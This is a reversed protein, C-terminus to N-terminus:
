GPARKRLRFKIPIEGGSDAIQQGKSRHFVNGGSRGVSAASTIEPHPSSDSDQASHTRRVPDNVIVSDAPPGHALVYGSQIIYARDALVSRRARMTHDVSDPRRRRRDARHASSKASMMVAILDVGQVFPEDLLVFSPEGAIALM